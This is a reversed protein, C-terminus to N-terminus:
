RNDLLARRRAFTTGVAGQDLRAIPGRFDISLQVLAKVKRM